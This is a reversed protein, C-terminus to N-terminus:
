RASPRCSTATRPWENVEVSGFRPTSATKATSSAPRASRRNRQCVTVQSPRLRSRSCTASRPRGPPRSWCRGAAGSAGSGATASLSRASGSARAVPSTRVDSRGTSACASSRGGAAGSSQSMSASAALWAEGAATLAVGSSQDLLGKRTMAETVAVGLRGALHDYCTRARALADATAVARFTRPREQGPELHGMLDELLEAVGADALEVYRHRGQRREVLLGGTVLRDLHESATSRAVGAHRALEGATWARRDFLALCFAARTDDALLGALRALAESQADATMGDNHMGDTRGPGFQRAGLSFRTSIEPSCATRAASASGARTTGRDRVDIPRDADRPQSRMHAAEAAAGLVGPAARQADGLKRAELRRFEPAVSAFPRPREGRPCGAARRGRPCAPRPARGGPRGPRRRRRRRAHMDAERRRRCPPPRGHRRRRTSAQPPTASSAVAARMPSSTCAETAVAPSTARAMAAAARSRPARDLLDEGGAGSRGAPVRLSVLRAGLRQADSRGLDRRSRNDLEVEGRSM